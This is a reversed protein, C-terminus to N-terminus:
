LQRRFFPPHKAINIRKNITNFLPQVVVLRLRRKHM